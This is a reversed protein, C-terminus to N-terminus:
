CRRLDVLIRPDHATPSLTRVSRHRIEQQLDAQSPSPHHGLCQRCWRKRRCMSRPTWRPNTRRGVPAANRGMSLPKPDQQDKM